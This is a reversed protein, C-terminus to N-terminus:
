PSDCLRRHDAVSADIRAALTEITETSAESVLLCFEDGGVRAAVDSPQAAGQIITAVVRLAEDGARHGFRNERSTTKQGHRRTRPVSSGPFRSKGAHVGGIFTPVRRVATLGRM